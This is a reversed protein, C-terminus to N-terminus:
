LKRGIIAYDLAGFFAERFDEPLAELGALSDRAPSLWHVQIGTFGAEQMLFRLLPAPVPRVHSPDLYFHTAFIALCQPNPTEVILQGGPRLVDACRRVFEPLRLPPLHEVVQACFVADFSDTTARLWEFLDATEACLGKSRCLAVCEDSSDVGVGEIGAERILELFEGRGCGLDVVKRCGELFPLYFRQRERIDEPSGRFEEALRMWDLDPAAEEAPTASTAPTALPVSARQRILRLERHILREFEIRQHAFDRALQQQMELVARKLAAEFDAHQAKVTERFNAELLSTRHQFAGQLEAVSRLFQLENTALKREWEQRWAAWSAALDSAAQERAAALAALARNNENLAELIADLSRVVARNFAVQERVHWDMVRAILRKVAQILDNVLGPPRPNVTGIAAVKGEALDRAHLLPMLDPLVVGNPASEPYRARVRERIERVIAVIEERTLDASSDAGPM